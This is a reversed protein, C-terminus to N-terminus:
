KKYGMFKEFLDTADLPNVNQKKTDASAANGFFADFQQMLTSIDVDGVPAKERGTKGASKSINRNRAADYKARKDADGLTDWAEAIQKFREAATKDGPHLDPHYQKASKRYREKIADVSDNPSAGLVAYYDTVSVDRM